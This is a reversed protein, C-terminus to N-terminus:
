FGKGGGATDPAVDEGPLLPRWFVQYTTTGDPATVYVDMGGGSPVATTAALQEPTLGAYSWAASDPFPTFDAPTLDAWPWVAAPGGAADAQSPDVESLVVRYLEPQYLESSLVNGKEVQQEFTSLLTALDEFAAYYAADPGEPDVIGLAYVSVAKDIGAADITFVTTPADTIRMDTYSDAADALKGVSLAYLLLADVQENSLHAEVYPAYTAGDAPVDSPRFIVTNDGYLVFTPAQSLLYGFPVFGGGTELSLVIDTSGTPHDIAGVPATSPSQALASGATVALLAGALPLSLTARRPDRRETHTPM